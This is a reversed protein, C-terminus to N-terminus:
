RPPQAAVAFQRVDSSSCNGGSGCEGPFGRTAPSQMARGASREGNNLSRHTRNAAASAPLIRRPPWTSQLSATVEASSFETGGHRSGSNVLPMKRKATLLFRSNATGSSVIISHGWQRWEWQGKSNRWVHICWPSMRSIVTSRPMLTCVQVAHDRKAKDPSM